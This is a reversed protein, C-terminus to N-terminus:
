KCSCTAAFMLRAIASPSARGPSRMGCALSKAPTSPTFVLVTRRAMRSRRSSPRRSVPRPLAIVTAPVADLRIKRGVISADKGYRREWLGCSLIVVPETGPKEDDAVFDRGLYPRQGLLSFANPTM